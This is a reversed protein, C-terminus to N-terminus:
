EVSRNLDEYSEELQFDFIGDLSEPRADFLEAATSFSKETSLNAASPKNHSDQSIDLRETNETLSRRKALLGNSEPGKASLKRAGLFRYKVPAIAVPPSYNDFSTVGAVAVNNSVAPLRSTAAMPSALSDSVSELSVQPLPITATINESVTAPEADINKALSIKTTISVEDTSAVSATSVPESVSVLSVSSSVPLAFASAQATGTGSLV